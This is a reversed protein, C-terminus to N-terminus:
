YDSNYLVKVATSTGIGVSLNPQIDLTIFDGNQLEHSTSVSVTVQNKEVDGLIQDYNSELLYQDNDDGNTHFFLENGDIATKLGILNSNKNIVFLNTPLDFKSSDLGDTSVSINTGNSTYVVSQNTTFPHNEIRLVRLHFAKTISNNGFIFSTSYGVGSITSVGISERPNFFRKENVKSDFKDVSKSITFSDSLFSVATGVTHSTGSLDERM